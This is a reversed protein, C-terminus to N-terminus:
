WEVSKVKKKIYMIEQLEYVELTSEVQDDFYRIQYDKDLIPDFLEIAMEKTGGHDILMYHSDVKYENNDIIVKDGKKIKTVPKSAKIKIPDKSDDEGNIATEIESLEEEAEEIEDELDGKEEKKSKKNIKKM